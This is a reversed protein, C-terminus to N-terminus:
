PTGLNVYTPVFFPKESTTPFELGKFSKIMVAPGKFSFFNMAKLAKQLDKDKPSVQYILVSIWRKTAAKLIKDLLFLYALHLERKDKFVSKDIFLEHIAGLRIKIGLKFAYINQHTITAGGIIKRNKKIVIYTPRFRRVPSQIRAWKMRKKTYPVFGNYYKPKIANIANMYDYHKRNHNIEYSVGKLIPNFKFRVRSIFRPLYSNVLLPMGFPIILPVNRMLKLVNPIQIFIDARYIDEYGLKLYIKKRPFGNYDADLLSFDCGKEKMYDIAMNMLTKAIGRGTYDPHCAVDNIDAIFYEKGNIPVYEVMNAYVSGVIKKCDTDEAIQVQEAEFGPSKVYRWHVVKPTRIVSGGNMQFARNFVEALQNEDGPKYHRYTINVM